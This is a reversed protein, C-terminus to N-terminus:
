NLEKSINLSNLTQSLKRKELIEIEGKLAAIIEEQNNMEKLCRINEEKRNTLQRVLDALKEKLLKNKLVQSELYTATHGYMMFNM